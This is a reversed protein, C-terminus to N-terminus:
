RVYCTHKHVERGQRLKKRTLLAAEDSIGLKGHTMRGVCEYIVSADFNPYQARWNSGYKNAMAAEYQAKELFFLILFWLTTIPSGCSNHFLYNTALGNIASQSCLRDDNTGRNCNMITCGPVVLDPILM